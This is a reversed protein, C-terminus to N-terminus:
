MAGLFLFLLLLLSCNSVEDHSSNHPFTQNEAVEVGEDQLGAVVINGPSVGPRLVTGLCWSGNDISKFWVRTAGGTDVTSGQVAM